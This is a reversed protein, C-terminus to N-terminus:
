RLDLSNLKCGSGVPLHLLTPNVTKIRNLNTRNREAGRTMERVQSSRERGAFRLEIKEMNTQLTRMVFCVLQSASVVSIGHRMTRSALLGLDLPWFSRTRGSPFAGRLGRDSSSTTRPKHCCLDRRRQTWIGGGVVNKLVCAVDSSLGGWHGWKWKIVEASLSDGLLNGNEPM